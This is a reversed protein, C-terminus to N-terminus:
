SNSREDDRAGRTSASNTRRPAAVQDSSEDELHERAPGGAIDKNMFKLRNVWDAYAQRLEQTLSRRRDSQTSQDNDKM